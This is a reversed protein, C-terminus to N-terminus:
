EADSDRGLRRLWCMNPIWKWVINTPINIVSVVEVDTDGIEHPDWLNKALFQILILMESFPSLGDLNDVM